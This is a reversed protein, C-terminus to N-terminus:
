DYKKIKYVPTEGGEPAHPSTPSFDGSRILSSVDKQPMSGPLFRALTNRCEPNLPLISGKGYFIERLPAFLSTGFNKLLTKKACNASKGLTYRNKKKRYKEGSM